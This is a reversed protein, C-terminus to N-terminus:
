TILRISQLNPVNNKLLEILFHVIKYGQEDYESM